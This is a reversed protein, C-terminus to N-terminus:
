GAGLGRIEIGLTATRGVRADSSRFVPAPNWAPAGVNVVMPVDSSQRSGIELSRSVTLAASGM